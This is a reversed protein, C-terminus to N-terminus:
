KGPVAGRSSRCITKIDTSLATLRNMLAVYLPGECAQYETPNKEYRKCKYWDSAQDGPNQEHWLKSDYDELTRRISENDIFDKRGDLFVKFNDRDVYKIGDDNQIDLRRALKGTLDGAELCLQRQENERAVKQQAQANIEIETIRSKVDFYTVWANLTGVIVALGAFIATLWDVTNPKKESQETSM